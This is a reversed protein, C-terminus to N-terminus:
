AGDMVVHEVPLHVQVNCAGAVAYAHVVDHLLLAFVVIPLHWKPQYNQTRLGIKGLADTVHYQVAYVLSYQMTFM